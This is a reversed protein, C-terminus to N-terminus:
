LVAYFAEGEAPEVYDKDSFVIVPGVLDSGAFVAYGSPEYRAIWLKDRAVLSQLARGSLVSSGIADRSSFAEAAARIQAEDLWAAAADRTALFACIAALSACAVGTRSTSRQM